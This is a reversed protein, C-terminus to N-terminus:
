LIIEKMAIDNEDELNFIPVVEGVALIDVCVIHLNFEVSRM